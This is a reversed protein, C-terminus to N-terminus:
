GIYRQYDKMLWMLLTYESSDYMVYWWYQSLKWKTLFYFWPTTIRTGLHQLCSLRSVPLWSICDPKWLIQCNIQKNRQCINSSLTTQEIHEKYIWRNKIIVNLVILLVCSIVILEEKNTKLKRVNKRNIIM